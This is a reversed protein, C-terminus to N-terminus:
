PVVLRDGPQLFVPEGEGKMLRKYDVAIKQLRDGTTRQIHIGGKDAFERLWGAQALATLVELPGHMILSGPSGVEGIVHVQASTAELVIVTVVPDVIVATLAATVADDLELSTLGAATLEGVQPLTIKGDPRIQLDQSMREDGFVDVRLRDGPGLRFDEDIWPRSDFGTAAARVSAAAPRSASASQTASAQAACGSPLLLLGTLVLSTPWCDPKMLM